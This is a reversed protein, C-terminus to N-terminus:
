LTVHASGASLTNQSSPSWSPLLLLEIGVGLLLLLLLEIGVGLLLLLPEHFFRNERKLSLWSEAAALASPAHLSSSSPCTTPEASCPAPLIPLLLLLLLLLLTHNSIPILKQLSISKGTLSSTSASM